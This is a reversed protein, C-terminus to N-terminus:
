AKLANVKKLLASKKRRAVNPSLVHNKTAKDITKQFLRTAEVAEKKKGEKVLLAAKSFLAKVNTKMRLNAKEHRKNKRLDKIAAHKNPM